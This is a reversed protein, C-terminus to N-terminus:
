YKGYGPRGKKTLKENTKVRLPECPESRGYFNEASIRFEYDKNPKLDTVSM